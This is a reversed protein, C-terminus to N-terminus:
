LCAFDPQVLVGFGLGAGAPVFRAFLRVSPFCIAAHIDTLRISNRERQSRLGAGTGRLGSARRHLTPTKAQAKSKELQNKLV